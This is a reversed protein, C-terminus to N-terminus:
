EEKKRPKSMKQERFNTFLRFYVRFASKMRLMNMAILLPNALFTLQLDLVAKKYPNTSFKCKLQCLFFIGNM